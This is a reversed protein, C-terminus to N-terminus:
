LGTSLFLFLTELTQPSNAASCMAAFFLFTKQCHMRGMLIFIGTLLRVMFIKAQRGANELDAYPMRTLHQIINKAVTRKSWSKEGRNGNRSQGAQHNAHCSRFRRFLGRSSSVFQTRVAYGDIDHGQQRWRIAGDITVNGPNGGFANINDRVWELALILDTM